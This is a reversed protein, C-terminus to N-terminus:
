RVDNPLSINVSGYINQVQSSRPTREDIERMTTLIIMVVVAAQARVIHRIRQQINQVWYAMQKNEM